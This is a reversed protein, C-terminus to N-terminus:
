RHHFLSWVKYFWNLNKCQKLSYHSSSLILSYNLMKWPSMCTGIFWSWDAWHNYQQQYDMFEQFWEKSQKNIEFMKWAQMKPYRQHYLQHLIFDLCYNSTAVLLNCIILFVAVHDPLSPAKIYNVVTLSTTKLTLSARFMVRMRSSSHRHSHLNIVPLCSQPQLLTHDEFDVSMQTQFFYYQSLM